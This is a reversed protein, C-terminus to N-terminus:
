IEAVARPGIVWWLLAILVYTATVAIAAGIAGSSGFIFLLSVMLCLELLSVKTRLQPRGLAPMLTKAWGMSLSAVAAAMLVRTPGVASSFSESYMLPILWPALLWGLLAFPLGVSIGLLTYFKVSRRLTAADGKAALRAQQPFISLRLGDNAVEAGKVPLTAVDFVGVAASGALRGLILPVIGQSVATLSTWISSHIGFTVLTRMWARHQTDASVRSWSRWGARWSLLAQVLGGLGAGAAFAILVAAAGGSSVAIAILVLRFISTGVQSWARLEPRGALLLVAGTTGDITSAFTTLAALRIFNAGFAPDDVIAAIPSAAGAILLSVVAGIALDMRLATRLLRRLGATDGHELARAGYHVVAEELTLDLFRAVLGSISIALVFVGYDQVGLGRAAIVTSVFALGNAVWVAASIHATRRWWGWSGWFRSGPDSPAVQSRAREESRV